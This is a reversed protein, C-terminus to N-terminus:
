FLGVAFQIQFSSENVVRDPFLNFGIDLALPGVPTLYRLGVGADYRLAGPNAATSALWLNGAEGFVAVDFDGVAPFRLEAKGLLYFNGGESPVEGGARLAQALTTCGAPNALANCHQVQAGLSARQDAPLLGDERFGRLTTAGGLYFRKTGFTQSLPNLLFIRGVGGSLALVTRRALPLYGTVRASTKFTEILGATTTGQVDINKTVEGLLSVLLGSHPNVANDRFDLSALGAVSNLIFSGEPLRLRQADLPNGTTLIQERSLYAKVNDNELEDQLTVTLWKRVTWDVGAVAALRSYTYAPRHVREGILDIRAGLQTPLVAYLRPQHLAINFRGDVGNIGQLARRGEETYDVQQLTSLLVYSVQGRMSLEVGGGGLNPLTLAGSVRPGDALFYGVRLEPLLRPQEKVEVVLDKVPEIADPSILRVAVQRFVGLAVLARQTELLAGPTLVDGSHLKLNLLIIRESTRVRGRTIIQGVRVLPGADIRFSVRVDRGDPSVETDADVRSYFYGSNALTRGLAARAQELASQRFPAGPAFDAGASLPTGLPTGVYTVDKVRAQPGEYVFFRAQVERLPKSEAVEQLRVNANLYGRERYIQTMAEAAERYADEVFAEEPRLSAVGETTSRPARGETQLPDSRPRINTVPPEKAKLTDKVVQRLVSTAIAQNGEFDMQTSLVPAGEQIDFAVVARAGSPSVTERPEVSVNLFGRYRYFNTVRRALRGIVTADLTEAGDYHLVSGLVEDPFSRSGHFHFTFAPGAEVPIAVFVGDPEETVRPTGVRARYFTERRYLVKLRELGADLATQDLVDGVSLQLADLVRALPLGPGGAISVGRLQTPPGENVVFSVAVGGPSESVSPAVRAQRYGRRVYAKEILARAEELRQAYFDSGGSLKAAAMVESTSLLTNGVVRVDAVKQVPTLVFSVSVGAGMPQVRVVIDALRGTAFLREISRRVSRKSLRQGKRVEVLPVFETASTGAPLELEVQVVREDPLAQGTFVEPPGRVDRQAWAASSLLVLVGFLLSGFVDAM